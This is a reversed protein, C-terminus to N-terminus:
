LIEITKKEPIKKTEKPFSITLIGNDYSAHIDEQATNEGIYYSRSCEGRFREQHIINGKEDKEESSSSRKASVSLYGNDLELHIDEKSYGPIDIELVYENEKERIDTKMFNRVSYDRFGPTNFFEDFLDFGYTRNRPVLKM